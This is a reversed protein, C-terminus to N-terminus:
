APIPEPWIKNANKRLHEPSAVAYIQTAALTAHGMLDKIDILDLGAERAHTGFAHRLLHLNFKQNEIGISKKFITWRDEIGSLSLHCNPNVKRRMCSPFLWRGKCHGMWSFLEPLLADVLPAIRHEHNKEQYIRAYKRHLDIDDIRVALAEGARAGTYYLFHIFCRDRREAMTGRPMKKIIALVDEKLPAIIRKSRPLHPDYDGLLNAPLYGRRTDSAWNVFARIARWYGARGENGCVLGTRLFLDVTRPTIGEPHCAVFEIFATVKNRYWVATGQARHANELWALWLEM